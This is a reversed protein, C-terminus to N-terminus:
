KFTAFIFTLNLRSSIIFSNSAWTIIETIITIAVINTATGAIRALAKVQFDINTLSLIGLFIGKLTILM